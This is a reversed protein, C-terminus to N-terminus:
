PQAKRKGDRRARLEDIADAVGPAASAAGLAATMVTCLERSLGAIGANTESGSMRAALVLAQQGLRTDLKGAEDLQRRTANVLPDDDAPKPEPAAGRSHRVRCVDSCFRSRASKPQYPNGCSDCNRIVNRLVSMGRM